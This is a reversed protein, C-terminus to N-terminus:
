ELREIFTTLTAPIGPIGNSAAIEGNINFTVRYVEQTNHLSVLLVAFDRNISSITYATSSSQYVNDGRDLAMWTGTRLSKKGWLSYHGGSGAKDYYYSLHTDVNTSLQFGEGSGGLLYNWGVYRINLNGMTIPTAYFDQGMSLTGPLAVVSRAYEMVKINKVDGVIASCNQELFDAIVFETTVPSSEIPTGEVSYYLSGNGVALNGPQLTATLGNTTSITHSSYEGGNGGIYPIILTGSYPTGAQYQAPSLTASACKLEQIEPTVVLRTDMRKWLSGDWIYLGPTFVDREQTQTPNDTTNFVVLGIHSKNVTAKDTTYTANENGPMGYMPFLENAKFLSVRPYLLGRVSNDNENETEKLQLLAGNQPEAGSGITVQAQLNALSISFFLFILHFLIKKNKIIM